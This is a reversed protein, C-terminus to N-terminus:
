RIHLYDMYSQVVAVDAETWDLMWLQELDMWCVAHHEAPVISGHAIRCVFPHLRIDFDPYSHSAPPLRFKIQVKIGLEEYIERVLCEEATEGPEIKGGPFEWKFPMRMRAGRQTVLIQDNEEIIACTVDIFHENMRAPSLEDSQPIDYFM